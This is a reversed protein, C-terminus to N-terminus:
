ITGNEEPPEKTHMKVLLARHPSFNLNNGNTNLSNSRGKSCMTNKSSSLSPLVLRVTPTGLATVMFVLYCYKQFLASSVPNSKYLIIQNYWWRNSFAAFLYLLFQSFITLKKILLKFWIRILHFGSLNILFYIDFSIM